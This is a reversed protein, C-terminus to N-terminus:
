MTQARLSGVKSGMVICLKLNYKPAAEVICDQFHALRIDGQVACFSDRLRIWEMSRAAVGMLGGKPRGFFRFWVIVRPQM